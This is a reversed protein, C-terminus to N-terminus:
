GAAGFDLYGRVQRPGPWMFRAEDGGSQGRCELTLRV